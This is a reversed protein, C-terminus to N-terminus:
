QFIVGALYMTGLMLLICVIMGFAAQGHTLPKRPKGIMFLNLFAGLAFWAVMAISVAYMM